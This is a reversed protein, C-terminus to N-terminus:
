LVPLAKTNHCEECSNWNAFTDMEERWVYILEQWQCLPPTDGHRGTECWSQTGSRRASSWSPEDYDMSLTVAPELQLWQRLDQRETPTLFLTGPLVQPPAPRSQPLSAELHPYGSDLSRAAQDLPRTGSGLPKVDNYLAYEGEEKWDDDWLQLDFERLVEQVEAQGARIADPTVGAPATLERRVIEGEEIEEYEGAVDDGYSVRRLEVEMRGSLYVPHFTLRVQLVDTTFDDSDSMTTGEIRTIPKATATPSSTM